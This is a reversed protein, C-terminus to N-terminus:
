RLSSLVDKRSLWHLHPCGYPFTTLLMGSLLASIRGWTATLWPHFLRPKDEM